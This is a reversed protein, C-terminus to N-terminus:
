AKMGWIRQMDCLIDMCIAMSLDSEHKKYASVVEDLAKSCIADDVKGAQKLEIYRLVLRSLYKQLQNGSEKLEVYKANYDDLSLFLEREAKTAKEFGAEPDYEVNFEM